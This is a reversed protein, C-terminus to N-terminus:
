LSNTFTGDPVATLTTTTAGGFTVVAGSYGVAIWMGDGYEAQSMQTVSAEYELTWTVGNDSSTIIQGSTTGGCIMLVGDTDHTVRYPAETMVSQTQQTWTIGDSSTFIAADSRAAVWVSDNYDVDPMRFTNAYNTTAIGTAGPFGTATALRTFGGNEFSTSVAYVTKDISANYAVGENMGASGLNLSPVFPFTLGDSTYYELPAEEDDWGIILMYIGVLEIDVLHKRLQNFPTDVWTIGDSSELFIGRGNLNPNPGLTWWKGGWYKVSTLELVTGSTRSTWTIGSDTSTIILGAKGVAVWMGNNYWVSLLDGSVGSSRETWGVDGSAFAGTTLSCDQPRTWPVAQNDRKGRLFDQPQRPEYCEDCVKLKDWSERLQSAKYTFGCRDCLAKWDGRKYSPKYSM